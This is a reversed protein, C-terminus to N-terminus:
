APAIAKAGEPDLVPGCGAGEPPAAHGATDRKLRVRHRPEPCRWGSGSRRRTCRQAPLPRCKGQTGIPRHDRKGCGGILQALITRGNAGEGLPGGVARHQAASRPSRVATSKRGPGGRRDRRGGGITRQARAAQARLGPREVRRRQGVVPQEAALRAALDPHEVAPPLGASRQGVHIARRRIGSRRGAMLADAGLRMRFSGLPSRRWDELEAPSLRGGLRTSRVGSVGAEGCAAFADAAMGDCEGGAYRSM